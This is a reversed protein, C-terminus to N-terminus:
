ESINLTNKRTISLKREKKIIEWRIEPFEFKWLGYSWCADFAWLDVLCGFCMAGGFIWPGYSWWVYLACLEVLCGFGMAGGFMWLVDNWWVDLAWLKVLCGRGMAGGFM